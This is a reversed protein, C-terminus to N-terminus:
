NKKWVIKRDKGRVLCRYTSTGFDEYGQEPGERESQNPDGEVKEIEEGQKDKYYDRTKRKQNGSMM